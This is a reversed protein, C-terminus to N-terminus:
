PSKKEKEEEQHIEKVDYADVIEERLVNAGKEDGVVDLLEALSYKTAVTDPHGEHLLEERVRLAAEYLRKAEALGDEDKKHLTTSKCKLFVALNQAASAASLTAVGVKDKIADGRKNEIATELAARLHEEAAEWRRKTLKSPKEQKPPKKSAQQLVQAAITSGLNSRSAVTHPHLQGLETKRIQWAEELYEMAMENYQLREMANLSDDLLTQSHHLNGLNHLAAAYSAHDKGVVTDYIRLAKHYNTRSDKFNGLLKHMLGINNFATATAPHNTGFHDKTVVLLEESSELAANYDGHKHHLRVYTQVKLIEEEKKPDPLPYKDKENSSSSSAATSTVTVNTRRFTTIAPAALSNHSAIPPRRKGIRQLLAMRAIRSALMTLVRM